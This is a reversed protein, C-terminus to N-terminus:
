FVWVLRFIDQKCIRPFNSFGLFFNCISRLLRRLLLFAGFGFWNLGWFVNVVFSFFLFELKLFSAFLVSGVGILWIVAVCEFLGGLLM